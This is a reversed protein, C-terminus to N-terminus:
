NLEKHFLLSELFDARTIFYIENEELTSMVTEQRERQRMFLESEGFM